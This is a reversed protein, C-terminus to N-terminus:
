HVEVSIDIYHSPGFPGGPGVASSRGWLRLTYTGPQSNEIIYPQLTFSQGASVGVPIQFAMVFGEPLPTLWEFDVFIPLPFGYNSVPSVQITIVDNGEGVTLKDKDMQFSFDQVKDVYYGFTVPVMKSKGSGEAIIWIDEIINKPPPQLLKVTFTTTFEPIGGSVPQFGLAVSSSGALSPAQVKLGVNHPFFGTISVEFSATPQPGSWHGPDDFWEKPVAILQSHPTVSLAFDSPPISMTVYPSQTPSYRLSTVVSYTYTSSQILTFRPTILLSTYTPLLRAVTVPSSHVLISSISRYPMGTNIRYGGFQSSTQSPILYGGVAIGAVFAIIAIGM